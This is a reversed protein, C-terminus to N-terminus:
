VGPISCKSIATFLFYRESGTDHYKQASCPLRSTLPATIEMELACSPYVVAPLFRRRFLVNPLFNGQNFLCLCPRKGIEPLKRVQETEDKTTPLGSTQHARQVGEAAAGVLATLVFDTGEGKM